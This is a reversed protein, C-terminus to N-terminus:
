LFFLLPQSAVAAKELLGLLPPDCGTGALLKQDVSFLVSQM